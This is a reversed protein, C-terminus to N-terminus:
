IETLHLNPFITLKKQSNQKRPADDIMANVISPPNFLFFCIYDSWSIITNPPDQQIIPQSYFRRCSRNFETFIFYIQNSKIRFKLQSFERLFTTISAKLHLAYKM